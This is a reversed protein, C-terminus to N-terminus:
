MVLSIWRFKHLVIKQIQNLSSKKSESMPDTSKLEPLTGCRIFVLSWDILWDLSCSFSWDILWDVSSDIAVILTEILCDILPSLAGKVFGAFECSFTEGKEVVWGGAILHVFTDSTM